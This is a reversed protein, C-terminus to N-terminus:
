STRCAPRSARSGTTSRARDPLGDDLITNMVPYPMPGVKVVMPSGWEKFPALEREAEEPTGTHFVIMGALPM